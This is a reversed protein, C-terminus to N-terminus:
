EHVRAVGFIVNFFSGLFEFMPESYEAVTDKAVFWARVIGDTWVRAVASRVTGVVRIEPEPEVEVTVLPVGWRVEPKSAAPKGETKLGSKSGAERSTQKKIETVVPQEVEVKVKVKVQEDDPASPKPISKKKAARQKQGYQKEYTRKLEERYMQRYEERFADRCTQTAWKGKINHAKDYECRLRGNTLTNFAENMTVYNELAELSDGKVKDQM